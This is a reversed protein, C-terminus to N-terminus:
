GLPPQTVEGYVEEEAGSPDVIERIQRLTSFLVEAALLWLGVFATWYMPWFEYRLNQTSAGSRYQWQFSEWAYWALCLGIALACLNNLLQLVHHTRGRTMRLFLDFQVHGYIRWIFAAGMYSIPWMSMGGSELAVSFVYGTWPRSFVGAMLMLFVGGVVFAAFGMGIREAMLLAHDVRDFLRWWRALPEDRQAVAADRAPM